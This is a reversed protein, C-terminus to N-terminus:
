GGSLVYKWFKEAVDQGVTPGDHMESVFEAWLRNLERAVLLRTTFPMHDEAPRVFVSLSQRRASHIEIATM